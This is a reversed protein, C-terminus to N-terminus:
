NSNKRNGSGAVALCDLLSYELTSARVQGNELAITEIRIEDGIRNFKELSLSRPEDNGGLPVGLGEVSAWPPTAGKGKEIVVEEEM